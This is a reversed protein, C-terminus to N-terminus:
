IGLCQFILLDATSYHLVIIEMNRYKTNDKLMFEFSSTLKGNKKLFRVNMYSLYFPLPIFTELLLCPLLYDHRSTIKGEGASSFERLLINERGTPM